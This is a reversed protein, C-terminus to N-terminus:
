TVTATVPYTVTGVRTSIVVNGSYTGAADAGTFTLTFSDSGAAAISAPVSSATYGTPATVSITTLAADGPNTLRVEIAVDGSGEAMTGFDYGAYVQAWAHPVPSAEEVLARVVVEVVLQGHSNPGKNIATVTWGLSVGGLVSQSRTARIANTLDEAITDCESSAEDDTTAVPFGLLIFSQADASPDSLGQEQDNNMGAWRVVVGRRVSGTGTAQSLIDTVFYDSTDLYDNLYDVIAAARDGYRSM